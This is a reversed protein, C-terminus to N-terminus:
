TWGPRWADEVHELRARAGEADVRIAVVDFRVEVDEDLYRALFDLAVAEVERRKFATVAEEPSGFSTGARTKVEVFAVVSGRRVM